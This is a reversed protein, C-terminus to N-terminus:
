AARAELKRMVEELWRLAADNADDFVRVASYRVLQERTTSDPERLALYKRLVEALERVGVPGVERAIEDIIQDDSEDRGYWYAGLLQFVQEALENDV